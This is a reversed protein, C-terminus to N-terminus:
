KVRSLRIYRGASRNFEYGLRSLDRKILKTFISHKTWSTPEMYLIDPSMKRIFYRIMDVVTSLVLVTKHVSADEGRSLPPIILFAIDYMDTGSSNGVFRTILKSNDGLDVEYAYSNRDNYADWDSTIKWKDRPIASTKTIIESLYAM